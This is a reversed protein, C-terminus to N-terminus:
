LSYSEVHQAVKLVPRWNIDATHFFARDFDKDDINKHTFEHLYLCHDRVSEKIGTGNLNLAAEWDIITYPFNKKCNQTYNINCSSGLIEEIRVGFYCAYKKITTLSLKAGSEARKITALSLYCCEQFSSDSLAEQSLGRKKRLNIIYRADVCEGLNSM